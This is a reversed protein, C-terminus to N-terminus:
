PGQTQVGVAAFSMLWSRHNLYWALTQKLGTEFSYHACFGLEKEILSPDISYRFDHGKRDQVFQLRKEFIDNPLQMQNALERILMKVLTLNDQESRSGINYHSNKPAKQLILWIGRVHDDVHIWDRVNKGSGYIPLNLGSLCCHIMHPILKEPHQYPGYNNSCNSLTTSLNYTHAWARVLHDSAAKSASYPSNPRYPSGEHFLGVKELSGYVEDTSIHHFHIQNRSRVLELLEFTGMINSRMFAGPGQISRDVHSEAAFHVITDIHHHDCIGELAAKECINLSYFSYRPHSAYDKVSELSAGHGQYDINVIHGQFDKSSLLYRIFASGIFGLGGTVLINQLKRM